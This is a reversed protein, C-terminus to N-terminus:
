GLVKCASLESPKYYIGYVLKHALVSCHHRADSM